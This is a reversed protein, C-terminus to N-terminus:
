KLHKTIIKYLEEMAKDSKNKAMNKQMREIIAPNNSIKRM